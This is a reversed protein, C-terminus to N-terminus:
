SSNLMPTLKGPYLNAVLTFPVCVVNVLLDAVALNGILKNTLTRMQPSKTVVIFVAVNGVIGIISIMSYAISSVYSFLFHNLARYFWNFKALTQMFLLKLKCSFWPQQWVMGFYTSIKMKSLLCIPAMQAMFTRSPIRYPGIQFRAKFFSRIMSHCKARNKPSNERFPLRAFGILYLHEM